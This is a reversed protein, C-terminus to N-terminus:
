QALLVARPPGIREGVCGPPQGMEHDIRVGIRVTLPRQIREIAVGIRVTLRVELRAWITGISVKIPLAVGDITGGGPVCARRCKAGVHVRVAARNPVTTNRLGGATQGRNYRVRRHTGACMAHM